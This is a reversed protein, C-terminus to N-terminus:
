HQEYPGNHEENGSRDSTRLEPRRTLVDTPGLGDATGNSRPDVGSPESEGVAPTGLPNPRKASWQHLWRAEYFNPSVCEPPM